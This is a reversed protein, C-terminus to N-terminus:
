LLGLIKTAPAKIAVCGLWGGPATRGEVGAFDDAVLTTEVLAGMEAWPRETEVLQTCAVLGSFLAFAVDAWLSGLHSDDLLLGPFEADYAAIRGGGRHGGDVGGATGAVPVIITHPAPGAHKVRTM